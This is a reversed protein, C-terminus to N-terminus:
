PGYAVEQRNGNAQPLAEPLDVGELEKGEIGEQVRNAQVLPIHPLKDNIQEVHVQTQLREVVAGDAVKKLENGQLRTGPKQYLRKEM